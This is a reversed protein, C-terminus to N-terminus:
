DLMKRWYLNAIHFDDTHENRYGVVWNGKPPHPVFCSLVLSGVKIEQRDRKGKSFLFVYDGASNQYINQITGNVRVQGDTSCEIRPHLPHQRWEFYGLTTAVIYVNIAFEHDDKMTDYINARQIDNAIILSRLDLIKDKLVHEVHEDLVESAM